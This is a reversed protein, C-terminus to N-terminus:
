TIHVDKNFITTSLEIKDKREQRKRTNKYKDIITKTNALAAGLELMYIQIARM